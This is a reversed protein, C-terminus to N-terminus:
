DSVELIVKLAGTNVKDRAVEFAEAAQELPFRHTIMPGVRVRGDALLRLAIEFDEYRHNSCTMLRREGALTAPGLTLGQAAGAMLIMTGGRRLAALGMQQAGLDGTTDFVAAFGDGLLAEAGGESLNITRGLGLERACALPTEYVDAAVAEGAGLAGTVQAILLGIPGGGLLLVPEGPFAGAMRAAHVAVALGDLFTAEDVSVGSPLEYVHESWVPCYEAMGGPNQGEWGAGHGLHATHACLQPEGRRCEACRGCSKFALCGVATDGRYGGIEHGLVMGPPNPKEYGLTHKAWPNEGAFYRLDSGCIGCAAVRVLEQGPLLEPIPVDEVILQEPGQLVVARMTSSM